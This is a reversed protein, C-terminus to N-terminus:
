ADSRIKYWARLREIHGQHFMAHNAMHWLVYRVTAPEPWWEISVQRTADEDSLTHLCERVMGLVQQYRDLLERVSKGTVPLLKGDETEDLGYDANLDAPVAEGKICYLYGLDVAALHGLLMATSNISISGAPGVYELEEQSMDQVRRSLKSFADELQSFAQGLIPPLGPSQLDRMPV